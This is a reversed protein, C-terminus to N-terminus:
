GGLEHLRTQLEQPIITELVITAGKQVQTVVIPLLLQEPTGYTKVGGFAAPGYSSPVVVEPLAKRIADQDTCSGAKKAAAAYAMMADYAGISVTNLSEGTATKLGSALRRQTDTAKPSAFDAALGMYTGEVAAGGAKVLDAGGTGGPALRIGNWGQDVLARMLLGAEGAPMTGMDLIAAGQRIITTALGAFQTTGREYKESGLVKVNKAAWVQQAVKETQQGTADNPNIISVTAADPHDKKVFSYLPDLLEFPTNISTFTYPYKPGKVDPGWATTFHIIKAPETLAQLAQMPATGVSSAIFDVKDRKILTQAVKAGTTANYENDYFRIDFTCKHSGATIGGNANLEMAAQEAVYKAGVGWGAAAGSSPASLGVKLVQTTGGDGGATDSGSGRCAALVLVLAMGSAM